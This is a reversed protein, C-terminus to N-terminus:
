RPQPRQVKHAKLGKDSQSVEFCLEEGQHLTKFGKGVIESYHVFVDQGAENVIFGFGKKNNWWKVKGSAM